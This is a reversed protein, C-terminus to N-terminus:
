SAQTPTAAKRGGDIMSAAEGTYGLKLKFADAADQAHALPTLALTLSLCLLRPRARRPRPRDHCSESLPTATTAFAVVLPHALRQRRM